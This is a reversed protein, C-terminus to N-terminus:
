PPERASYEWSVAEFRASDKFEANLKNVVAEARTREVEVDGPSSVFLRFVTERSKLDRARNAEADREQAEAMERLRQAEASQQRTEEAESANIFDVSANGQLATLAGEVGGVAYYDAFTILPSTLRGWMQHLMFQLLPLPAPRRELDDLIKEVLGSEFSVKSAEAPREIADRLAHRSMPGLNM